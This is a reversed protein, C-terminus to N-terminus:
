ESVEDALYTRTGYWNRQSPVLQDLAWNFIDCITNMAEADTKSYFSGLEGVGGSDWNLAMIPRSQDQPDAPKAGAPWWVCLRGGDHNKSWELARRKLDEDPM